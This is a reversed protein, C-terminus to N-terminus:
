RWKALIIQFSVQLKRCFCMSVKRLRLKSRLTSHRILQYRCDLKESDIFNSFIKTVFMACLYTVEGICCNQCWDGPHNGQSHMCTSKGPTKKGGLNMSTNWPFRDVVGLPLVTERPPTSPPGYKPGGGQYRRADMRSGVSSCYHHHHDYYYYDDGDFISSWHLHWHPLTLICAWLFM